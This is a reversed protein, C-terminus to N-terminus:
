APPATGGDADAGRLARAAGARVRDYTAAVPLLRAKRRWRAVLEESDPVLTHMSLHLAMQARDRLHWAVDLHAEWIERM